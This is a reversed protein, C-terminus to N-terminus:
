KLTEKRQSTSQLIAQLHRKLADRYKQTLKLYNQREEATWENWINQEIEFLPYVKEQAFAKGAETLRVITNRGQGAEIRVIGDKELKHLASHITQRSIGTLKSIESQLCNGGKEYIVYLINQISDSIGAKVAAEHYLANIEGALYTYQQTKLYHM